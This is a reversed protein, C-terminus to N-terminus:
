YEYQPAAQYPAQEPPLDPGQMVVQEYEPAMEQRIPQLEVTVYRQQGPLTEGVQPIEVVKEVTQIYPVEVIKEITQIQQVDPVHRQKQVPVHIHHDVFEVQPVDVM